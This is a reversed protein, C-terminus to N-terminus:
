AHDAPDTITDEALAQLQEPWPWHPNDILFQAITAFDAPQGDEIMRMWRVTKAPLPDQILAALRLARQWENRGTAQFTEWAIAREEPDLAHATTSAALWLGVLSLGLLLWRLLLAM